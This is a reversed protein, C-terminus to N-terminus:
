LVVWIPSASGSAFSAYQDNRAANLIRRGTAGEDYCSYLHLVNSDLAFKNKANDLIWREDRAIKSIRLFSLTHNYGKNLGINFGNTAFSVSINPNFAIKKVFIGDAYYRIEENRNDRVVTHTMYDTKNYIIDLTYSLRLDYDRIRFCPVYSAGSITTAFGWGDAGWYYYPFNVDGAGVFGWGTMTHHLCRLEVTFDSNLLNWSNSPPQAYCGTSFYVGYEYDQKPFAHLGSVIKPHSPPLPFGNLHKNLKLLGNGRLLQEPKPFTLLGKNM